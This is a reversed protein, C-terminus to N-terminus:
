DYNKPRYDKEMMQDDNSHMKLAFIYLIMGIFKLLIFLLAFLEIYSYVDLDKRGAGAFYFLMAYAIVADTVMSIFLMMKIVNKTLLAGILGISLLMFLIFVIINFSIMM